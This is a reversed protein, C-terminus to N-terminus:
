AANELESALGAYNVRLYGDDGRVVLHPHTERLEDAIVGFTPQAPDAVKKGVENWDWTYFNVNGIKGKATVNKKLRADSVSPAATAALQLYNFLGPNQSTTTTSVNPAAGLAALPAQLSAMPAGSYGAFQAKAADILAQQLGQQLLGQQAQNQQITQGIGFAQQGLSALQQAAGLRSTNAAIQNGINFQQVDMGATAGFQNAATQAAAQSQAAGLATNFGQQRMRAATDAATQAFGRRTEASELAFRDGGFAGAQTAQAGLQNLSQKQQRNIDRMSANIVQQEYPNQYQKIYSSAQAPDYGQATMTGPQFGM